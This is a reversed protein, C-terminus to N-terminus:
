SMRRVLIASSRWRDGFVIGVLATGVTLLLPWYRGSHFLLAWTTIRIFGITGLIIGLSLGSLIERRM